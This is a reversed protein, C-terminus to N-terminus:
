AALVNIWNQSTWDPCQLVLARVLEPPIVKPQRRAEPNQSLFRYHNNRSLVYASQNEVGPIHEAWAIVDYKAQFFFASRLLHMARECRSTGSNVIAVVAANDCRCKVASLYYNRSPSTLSEGSRQGSWNSGSGRAGCGWTGSADSTLTAVVQNQLGVSMMSRGNWSPLFTAWWLLDSRFGLNLCIRHHPKKAVALLAIMRRLFTRGPRVICTAHQLQGILSQLERKTFCRRDGWERVEKQLRALKETPLHLTRTVTDLEIGLFTITTSPGETKHTAIPVGLRSCQDLAKQLPVGEGSGIKSNVLIDDLYHLTEM